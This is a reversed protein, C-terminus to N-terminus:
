KHKERLKSLRLQKFHNEPFYYGQYVKYNLYGVGVMFHSSSM